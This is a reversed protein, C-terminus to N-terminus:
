VGEYRASEACSDYDLTLGSRLLFERTHMQWVKWVPQLVSGSTEVM